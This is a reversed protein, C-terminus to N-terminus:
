DRELSTARERDRSFSPRLIAVACGGVVVEERECVELTCDKRLLMFYWIQAGDERIGTNDKM